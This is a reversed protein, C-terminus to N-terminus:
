SKSYSGGVEYLNTHMKIYDNFNKIEDDTLAKDKSYGPAVTEFAKLMGKSRSQIDKIFKVVNPFKTAGHLENYHSLYYPDALALVPKEKALCDIMDGYVNEASSVVKEANEDYHTSYYDFVDKIKKNIDGNDKIINTGFIKRANSRSGTLVNSLNSQIESIEQGLKEPSLEISRIATDGKTECYERTRWYLNSIGYSKRYKIGNQQAFEMVRYTFEPYLKYAQKIFDVIMQKRSQIVNDIFSTLNKSFPNIGYILMDSNEYKLQSTRAEHAYTLKVAPVLRLNKFKEPEEGVVKLAHQIGELSDKDTIAFIFKKGTKKNYTDAYKAVSDMLDFIHESETNISFGTQNDLDARYIGKSKNDRSSIFEESTLTPLIEKFEDPHMVCSFNEPPIKIGMVDYMGKSIDQLYESTSVANGCIIVSAAPPHLINNVRDQLSKFINGGFSINSNQTSSVFSDFNKNRDYQYSVKNLPKTNNLISPNQSVKIDM